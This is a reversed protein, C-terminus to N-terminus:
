GPPDSDSQLVHLRPPLRITIQQGASLLDGAGPVRVRLVTPGINVKYDVAGGLFTLERVIAPAGDSAVV